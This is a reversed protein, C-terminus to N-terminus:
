ILLLSRLPFLLLYFTQFFINLPLSRCSCVCLIRRLNPKLVEGEKEKKKNQPNQEGLLDGNIVPFRFRSGAEDRPLVSTAVKMADISNSNSQSTVHADPNSASSPVDGGSFMRTDQPFRATQSGETDGNESAGNQTGSLSLHVQSTNERQPNQLLPASQSTFLPRSAHPKGEPPPVSKKQLDMTISRNRRHRSKETSALYQSTERLLRESADVTNQINKNLDSISGAEAIVTRKPSNGSHNVPLQSGITGPPSRQVGRMSTRPSYHMAPRRPQIPQTSTFSDSASRYRSGGLSTNNTVGSPDYSSTRPRKHSAEEGKLKAVFDDWIKMQQVGPNDVGLELMSSQCDTRRGINDHLHRLFSDHSFFIGCDRCMICKSQPHIHYKPLLIGIQTGIQNTHKVPLQVGRTKMNLHEVPNPLLHVRTSQRPPLDNLSDDDTIDNQSPHGFSGALLSDVSGMPDRSDQYARMPATGPYPKSPLISQSSRLGGLKSSYNSDGAGTGLASRYNQLDDM